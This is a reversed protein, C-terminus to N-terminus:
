ARDKYTPLCIKESSMSVLTIKGAKCAPRSSINAAVSVAAYGIWGIFLDALAVGTMRFYYAYLKIASDDVIAVDELNKESDMIRGREITLAIIHARLVTRHNVRMRCLLHCSGSFDDSRHRM